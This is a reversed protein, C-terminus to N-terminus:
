NCSHILLYIFLAFCAGMKRSAGRRFSVHVSMCIHGLLTRSLLYYIGLCVLCTPLFLHIFSHFIYQSDM